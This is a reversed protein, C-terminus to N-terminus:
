QKDRSKFFLDLIKGEGGLVRSLERLAFFPIFAVFIVLSGAIIEYSGKGLFEMVGEVAGKSKILSKIANEILVFLGVFLTFIATKLLIPFILPKHEFGRGLHIADGIMIVKAFILAEILAVGYDTYTIGVDALILRRYWTFAGFVLTLYAVYIWYAKVEHLLKKKLNGKNKDPSNMKEERSVSNDRRPYANTVKTIAV